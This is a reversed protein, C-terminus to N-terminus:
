VARKFENDIAFDVHVRLNWVIGGSALVHQIGACFDMRHLGLQKPQVFSEGEIPRHSSLGVLEQLFGEVWDACHPWVRLLLGQARDWGHLDVSGGRNRM